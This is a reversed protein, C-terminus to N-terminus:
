TRLSVRTNARGRDPHSQAERGTGRRAPSSLLVSEQALIRWLKGVEAEVSDIPCTLILAPIPALNSPRGASLASVLSDGALFPYANLANAIREIPGSYEWRVSYAERVELVVDPAHLSIWRWLYRSEPDNRDFYFDDEPPYGEAPNGGAGNSLLTGQAYGDPNGCPIASLAVDRELSEGRAAYSELVRLGNEVGESRGTLGSLLLVRTRDTEPVYADPHLLAPIQTDSRTVGCADLTWLGPNESALAQIRETLTM